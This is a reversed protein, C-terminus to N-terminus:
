FGMERQCIELNRQVYSCIKEGKEPWECLIALARDFDARADGYFGQALKICARHNLADATLWHDAKLKGLAEELAQNALELAKEQDRNKYVSRTNDLLKQVEHEDALSRYYSINWEVTAPLEHGAPCNSRAIKLAKDLCKIAEAYENKLAHIRSYDNLVLAMLIPNKAHQAARYSQVYLRFAEVRRGEDFAKTAEQFDKEAAENLTAKELKDLNSMVLRLLGDSAPLEASLKDSLKKLGQYADLLKENSIRSMAIFAHHENRQVRKRPCNLKDAMSAANRFQECALEYQGTRFLTIGAREAQELDQKLRLKQKEQLKRKYKGFILWASASLLLFAVAVLLCSATGSFLERATNM